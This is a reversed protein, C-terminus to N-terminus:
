GILEDVTRVRAIMPLVQQVSFEHHQSSVSSTADEAVVVNYGLSAAERATSEVGFNTAIGAVVVTKVSKAKLAADLETGLFAGWGQKTIRLDEPQADLGDVLEDFGPPMSDPLPMVLDPAIRDAGGSPFAVTVLAVPLGQKRFHGALTSSASVVEAGSRPATPMGVVGNQLDILVLAADDLAISRNELM